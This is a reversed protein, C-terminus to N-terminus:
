ASDKLGEAVRGTKANKAVESGDLLLAAAIELDGVGLACETVVQPNQPLGTHDASADLPDPAKYGQTAEVQLGPKWAKKRGDEVWRALCCAGIIAM